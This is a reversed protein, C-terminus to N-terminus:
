GRPPYPVTDRNGEASTLAAPPQTAARLSRGDPTEEVARRAPGGPQGPHHAQRCAAELAMLLDGLSTRISDHALPGLHHIVTDARAVSVVPTAVPVADCRQLVDIVHARAAQAGYSSPSASIVAAPKGALPQAGQPCALWDLANKLPGPISGSYEPTAIMVADASRVAHLLLLVSRPLGAQALDADFIPLQAVSLPVPRLSVPVPLDTALNTAARLLAANLSARRSSGCMTVITTM